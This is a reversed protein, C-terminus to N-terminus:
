GHVTKKWARTSDLLGLISVGLAVGIAALVPEQGSVDLAIEPDLGVFLAMYMVGTSLAWAAMLVPLNRGHRTLWFGALLSGAIVYDIIWMPAYQWQDRMSNLVTEVIILALAFVLAAWRCFLFGHPLPLPGLAGEPWGYVNGGGQAVLVSEGMHLKWGEYGSSQNFVELRVGEGFDLALDGSANVLAERVPRGGALELARAPANVPEPLGFRQEDDEYGLRVEGDRVFRWPSAIRLCHQEGFDASWEHCERDHEISRLMRGLLWPVRRLMPDRTM